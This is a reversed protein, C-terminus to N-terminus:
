LDVSQRGFHPIYHGVDIRLSTQKWVREQFVLDSANDVVVRNSVLDLVYPGAQGNVSFVISPLSPTGCFVPVRPVVVVIDPCRQSKELSALYSGDLISQPTPILDPSLQYEEGPQLTGVDRLKIGTDAQGFKYIHYADTIPLRVKGFPTGDDQDKALEGSRIDLFQPSIYGGDAMNGHLSYQPYFTM